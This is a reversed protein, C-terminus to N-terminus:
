MSKALIRSIVPALARGAKENGLYVDGQSVQFQPNVEVPAKRFAAELKVAIQHALDAADYGNGTNQKRIVERAGYSAFINDLADGVGLLQGTEAWLELGRSRKSVSLPIISEAGDEAVLGMHPTDFIGGTAHQKILQTPGQKGAGPGVLTYGIKLLYGDLQTQISGVNQSTWSPADIDDMEPPQLSSEALLENMEDVSLGILEGLQDIIPQRQSEEAYKLQNLLSIAQTQVSPEKSSMSTVMSDPLDYGLNQFLTQLEEQKLQTGSVVSSLLNIASQQVDPKKLELSEILKEPLEIGSTSYQLKLDEFDMFAKEGIQKFCQGQADYVLGYNEELAQAFAAPMEYGQKTAEEVAERYSDSEVFQQAMLDYIHDVSGGIAEMQYIDNLGDLIAKPPMKGADIFAQRQAELDAKQPAMEKMLSEIAGKADGSVQSISKTFVSELDSWAYAWGYDENKIRSSLDENFSRIDSDFQTLVDSYNTNLTGIEVDVTELLINGKENALELQIQQLMENYQTHSIEGAELALKAEAFLSISTEDAKDLRTQLNETTNQILERFSEETIGSNPAELKLKTLRAEYEADAIKNILRQIKQQISQINLYEDETVIGDALAKDVADAMQGGLDSLDEQSDLFFNNTFDKLNRYADTGPTMIADIALTMTYSQQEMLTQTDQVFKQTTEQFSKKEEDTLDLGIGIKWGLKNLEEVSSSVSEEMDSLKSKADMVADIKMTWANTTLRKAVDEVEEASLKIDGFHNKLNDKVAEDHAHKIAIAIGTIATAAVVAVGLPGGLASFGKSLLGTSKTATAANTGVNEIAQAAAKAASKDALKKNLTGIGTKLTGVGKAIGGLAKIAPGAAAAWAATEVVSKKTEPSLQSFAKAASAVDKAVDAVVPLFDEGISRGAEKISNMAIEMQSETTGYRKNAEDTLAINEDWATTGVKIAESFVDSAGAARLLSDRMRIETIGMDDLVGIASLGREDCAALGDIFSIIAGAADEQFATKFDDASMGAVDAFQQLGEGGKEVALQMNSMLTSFSSGGAEAEIGVSSLATAFGLIQPETMGLQTGAGVLRTGMAVIDAETTAFNNGLDVIASGLKQYDDPLMGSVNAFKALSSAAEEASLNTSNGLDIMVRTFDLISDTQIGLQGAAEAVASIETTSSPIERSMDIIGQRLNGIQQATGDVTKTVGTFASEFDKATNFAGIGLAAIPTTVGLTLAGGIRSMKEGASKWKEGAQQAAEGYLRLKSESKELERSLEATQTEADNLKTKFEVIQDKSDKVQNELYKHRNELQLLQNRYGDAKQTANEYAKAVKEQTQAAEKAEDSEEGHAKTVADVNRKAEKYRESLARVKEEQQKQKISTQQIQEELKKQEDKSRQIITNLGSIADKLGSARQKSTQLQSSLDRSRQAATQFIDATGKSASELKRMESQTLDGQQDIRKLDKVASQVASHLSSLDLDISGSAVGLNESM